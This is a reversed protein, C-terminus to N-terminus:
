QQRCAARGHQWQRTGGSKRRRAQHDHARGRRRWRVLRDLEMARKAGMEALLADYFKAVRDIDNTGITVYGIM